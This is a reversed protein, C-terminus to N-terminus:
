PRPYAGSRLQLPRPEVFGVVWEYEFQGSAEIWSAFSVGQWGAGDYFDVMLLQAHGTFDPDFGYGLVVGDLAGVEAPDVGLADQCAGDVDALVTAGSRVVDWAWACSACDHREAVADLDYRIRCVDDGEGEDERAYWEESGDYGAAGAIASGRRVELLSMPAADDDDGTTDDDGTASDDDGLTDDDDGATPSSDDDDDRHACSLVLTLALVLPLRSM